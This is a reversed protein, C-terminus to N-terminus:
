LTQMIAIVPAKRAGLLAVLAQAVEQDPTEPDQLKALVAEDVQSIAAEIEAKTADLQADLGDLISQVESAQGAAVAGLTTKIAEINQAMITFQYLASQNTYALGAQAIGAGYAWPQVRSIGALAKALNSQANNATNAFANIILDVDDNNLSAAVLAELGYDYYPTDEDSAQTFAGTGHIHETHASAGTYTRTQWGDSASWIRRNYIIYRLRKELDGNRGRMVLAQVIREATIGPLWPGASTIDRARVENKSDGDKWEAAGTKDPNHSSASENQHALDGISGDSATSRDPGLVNIQDRWHDIGKTTVWSTAM